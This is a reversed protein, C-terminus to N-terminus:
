LVLRGENGAIENWLMWLFSVFSELLVTAKRLEDSSGTMTVTAPMSHKETIDVM